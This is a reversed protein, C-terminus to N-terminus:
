RPKERKVTDWIMKQVYAQGQIQEYCVSTKNSYVASTTGPILFLAIIPELDTYSLSIVKDLNM